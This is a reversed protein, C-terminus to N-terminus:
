AQAETPRFGPICILDLPDADTRLHSGTCTTTWILDVLIPPMEGRAIEYTLSPGAPLDRQDEYLVGLEQGELNTVSCEMM